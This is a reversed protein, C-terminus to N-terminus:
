YNRSHEYIEDLFYLLTSLIGNSTLVIITNKINHTRIIEKATDYDSVNSFFVISNNSSLTIYIDEVQCKFIEDDTNPHFIHRQVTYHNIKNESLALPQPYICWPLRM